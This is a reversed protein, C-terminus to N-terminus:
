QSPFSDMDICDTIEPHSSCISEILARKTVLGGPPYNPFSRNEIVSSISSSTFRDTDKYMELINEILDRIATNLEKDLKTMESDPSHLNDLGVILMTMNDKSGAEFRSRSVTFCM